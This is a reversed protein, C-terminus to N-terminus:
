VPCGVGTDGGYFGRPTATATLVTIIAVKGAVDPGYEDAPVEILIQGVGGRVVTVTSGGPTL